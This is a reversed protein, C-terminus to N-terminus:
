FDAATSLNASISILALKEKLVPELKELSEAIFNLDAKDPIEGRLISSTLNELKEAIESAYVTAAFTETNHLCALLANNSDATITSQAISKFSALLTPFTNVATQLVDTALKADNDLDKLFQEFDVIPAAPDQISENYFPKLQPYALAIEVFELLLKRQIPKQIFDFAGKKWCQRIIDLNSYKTIVLTPIQLNRENLFDLVETGRGDPLIFDLLILDYNNQTLKEKAANITTVHDLKYITMLATSFLKASMEDDEVLLITKM